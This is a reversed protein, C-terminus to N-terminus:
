LSGQKAEKIMKANPLIYVEVRRNLRRGEVTSNDAIPEYSGKGSYQMRSTAVGQANLFSYVAKARRESLPNNVRDSGTSDTHGIIEIDTDPNENINKAFKSLASRSAANLDSKGTQFLIGSDFTVRIAEGDNIAEIKADPLQTELEKKQKDMKNGIIAGAAGGITAGIIAGMGSNGAVKGIGAGIAAGAGTGIAGGKIANSLGCGSILLATAALAAIISTKKM